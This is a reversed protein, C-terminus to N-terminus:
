AFAGALVSAKRISTNAYVEKYANMQYCFKGGSLDLELHTANIGMKTVQKKVRRWTARNLGSNILHPKDIIVPVRLKQVGVGPVDADVWLVGHRTHESANNCIGINVQREFINFMDDIGQLIDNMM